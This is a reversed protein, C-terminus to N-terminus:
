EYRLAAVPDLHAARRAPYLGAIIGIVMAFVPALVLLWLPTAVISVPGGSGGPGALQQAVSQSAVANIAQSLLVGLVLGVLGGGGGIAAAEALFVAMVQRTTAGVAKMLGIEATREYIATILTNAIGTGAILLTILGVGGVFAQLAYYTRNIQELIQNPSTAFFGDKQIQDSLATQSKSDAALLTAGPYGNLQHNVQQGTAWTNLEDVDSLRMIISYDYDFGRPALVGAVQLRVVRRQTQGDSGKRTLELTLSKGQLDIHPVRNDGSRISPDSFSDGVKAGVLVQWRGLDASGSSLAYNFNAPADPDVGKLSPQAEYADDRVTAQGSFNVVPTIAKVGPLEALSALTDPKLKQSASKTVGIIVISVVQGSGGGGTGGDGLSIINIENLPGLGGLNQAALQQLGNALSFLIVIAGTGIVVGFASLAARFQTRTLNTLTLWLLDVLRV